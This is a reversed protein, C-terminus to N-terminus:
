LSMGRDRKREKQLYGKVGPSIGIHEEMDKAIEDYGHLRACDSAYKCVANILGKHRSNLNANYSAKYSTDDYALMGVAKVIEGMVHYIQNLRAKLESVTNQLPETAAKIKEDVSKKLCDLEQKIESKEIRLIRINNRLADITKESAAQKEKLKEYRENLELQENYKEIYKEKEQEAFTLENRATELIGEAKDETWSLIEESKSFAASLSQKSKERYRVAEEKMDAIQKLEDKSEKILEKAAKEHAMSLKSRKELKELEAKEVMVKTKNFPISTEEIKGPMSKVENHIQEVTAKYQEVTMHERHLGKDATRKIDYRGMIDEIVSKEKEQWCKNRNNHKNVKGEVEIGMEKLAKDLSNRAMMGQKYERAIPIYDIHLHPTKEDLHMVANFVYLNPNREAFSLMYDDLIKKAADGLESGVPCDQMNGVQVVIEYFEKEKNGSHRIKELYEKASGIKRDKRKQKTDYEEVAKGFCAEYAEEITQKTYTINDKIRDADVNKTIFERNNHNLSGRGKTVSVSLSQKKEM